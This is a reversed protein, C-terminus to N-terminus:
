LDLGNQIDEFECSEIPPTIKIYSSYTTSDVCSSEPKNPRRPPKNNSPLCEQVVSEKAPGYLDLKSHFMKAYKVIKYTIGDNCCTDRLLNVAETYNSRQVLVGHLLSSWSSQPHWWTLTFEIRSPPQQETYESAYLTSSSWTMASETSWSRHDGRQLLNLVPFVNFCFCYRVNSLQM